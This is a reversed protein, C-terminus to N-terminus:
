KSPPVNSGATSLEHSIVKIKFESEDYQKFSKRKKEGGRKKTSGRILAPTIEKSSSVRM